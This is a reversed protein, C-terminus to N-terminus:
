FSFRRGNRSWPKNEKEQEFDETSDKYILDFEEKANNARYPYNRMRDEEEYQQLQRRMALINLERESPPPRSLITAISPAPPKMRMEYFTPYPISKKFFSFEM